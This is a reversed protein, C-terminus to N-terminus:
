ATGVASVIIGDIHGDKDYRPEVKAGPHLLVYLTLEHLKRLKATETQLDRTAKWYSLYAVMVSIGVGILMMVIDRGMTQGKGEAVWLKVCKTM